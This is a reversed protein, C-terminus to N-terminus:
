RVRKRAPLPKDVTEIGLLSAFNDVVSRLVARAHDNSLRSGGPEEHTRLLAERIVIWRREAKVRSLTSATVEKASTEEEYARAAAEREAQSWKSSEAYGGGRPIIPYKPLKLRVKTPKSEDKVRTM